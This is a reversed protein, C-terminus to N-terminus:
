NPRLRLHVVRNSIAWFILYDNAFLRPVVFYKNRTVVAIGALDEPFFSRVDSMKKWREWILGPNRIWDHPYFKSGDELRERWGGLPLATGGLKVFTSSYKDDEWCGAISKAVFTLSDVDKQSISGCKFREVQPMVRDDTTVRGLAQEVEPALGRPRLAEVFTTFSFLEDCFGAVQEQGLNGIRISQSRLSKTPDVEKVEYKHRDDLEVDFHSGPGKVMEPHYELGFNRCLEWALRHEGNGIGLVQGDDDKEIPPRWPVENEPSWSRLERLVAVDRSSSPRWKGDLNIRIGM